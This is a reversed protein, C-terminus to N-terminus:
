GNTLYPLIYDEGYKKYFEDIIINPFYTSSMFKYIDDLNQGETSPFCKKYRQYGQDISAHYIRIDTDHTCYSTSIKVNGQIYFRYFQARPTHKAPALYYYRFKIIYVPVRTDWDETVLIEQNNPDDFELELSIGCKFSDYSMRIYSRHSTNYIISPTLLKETIYTPRQTTKIVPKHTTTIPRKTTTIKKITTPKKTTTIPKHIVKIVPQHIVKIVPKGITAPRRTKVRHYPNKTTFEPESTARNQWRNRNRNRNRNRDQRNRNRDQRNRRASLTESILAFVLCVVLISGIKAM